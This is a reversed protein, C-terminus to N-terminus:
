FQQFLLNRAYLEVSKEGQNLSGAMFRVTPDLTSDAYLECSHFEHSSIYITTLTSEEVM